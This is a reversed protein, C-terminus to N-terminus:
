LKYNIFDTPTSHYLHVGGSWLSAVTHVNAGRQMCFSSAEDHPFLLIIIYTLYVQIAILM